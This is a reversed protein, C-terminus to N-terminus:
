TGGGHRRETQKWASGALRPAGVYEESPTVSVIWRGDQEDAPVLPDFGFLAGNHYPSDDDMSARASDRSSHEAARAELVNQLTSHKLRPSQLESPEVGEEKCRAEILRYMRDPTIPLESTRIGIADYVANCVAPLIPLLPGEGAEKAGFPGESDNSEVIIPVVEPMEHVSPIKYDLLDPNMLHGYRGYKLEESLVQGLGMHCSGIMQGKVSLPNLAKGCDHAAWIKLVKTQGTEADVKVEAVYASFSYAPAIGAGAGKHVRGM